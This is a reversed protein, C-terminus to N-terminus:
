ELRNKFNKLSVTILVISFGVLVSLETLVYRYSVGEIMLKRIASIYWKAPVIHSVWQLINPMNEIPFIMGSLMIAPLMLVMMSGLMAAVQTKVLTSILLGLALSLFIYLLSILLLWFLSGAVPVDLVFFALLLITVLNVCSIVFYPIMKAFIIHIPKVPSTLLVEMTGTEKERVISVSTMLACILIFILGMIGPVFNYSSRMQPNYLMRITPEVGPRMQGPDSVQRVYDRVIGSLYFMEASATNPNSADVMMQLSPIKDFNKGFVIAIDIQDKRMQEDVCASSPLWEVVKFYENADIKETLHRISETREPAVIAVNINRIETSIAFGFLIIQVVPMVLLILMTRKDRLIHYFEKKVFAGFEKM